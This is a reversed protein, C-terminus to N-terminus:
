GNSDMTNMTNQNRLPERDSGDNGKIKQVVLYILFGICVVALLLALGAIFKFIHYFFYLGTPKVEGNEAQQLLAEKEKKIKAQTDKVTSNKSSDDDEDDIAESDNLDDDSSM